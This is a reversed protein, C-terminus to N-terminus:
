GNDQKGLDADIYINPAFYLADVSSGMKLTMTNSDNAGPKFVIGNGLYMYEKNYSGGRDFYMYSSDASIKSTNLYIDSTFTKTGSITQATDTTVMNSPASGGGIGYTASGITLSTWNTGDNTGSVADPINPTYSTSTGGANSLVLTDGSVTASVVYASPVDTTLAVTGNNAPFNIAYNGSSGVRGLTTAANDISSDKIVISGNNFTKVGTINQATDVTVKNNLATQLDTQNSLVGTINGWTATAININGSGVISQNNITKVNSSLNGTTLLEGSATPVYYVWYRYDPDSPSVGKKVTIYPAGSANTSIELSNPTSGIKLTQTGSNAGVVLSQSFEKSGSITQTTDLTVKNDLATQLDTQDALTGGIDGWNVDSSGDQGRPIGFTFAFSKENDPGSAVVTATASSGPVLTQATATISGFGAPSGDAGTNGQPGQPGVPGQPGTEGQPGPAPFVGLNFWQPTEDGEFARTFIYYNYPEETGVVYADGYEGEYTEPDPLDAASNVHGIVKIGFEALVTVGDMIDQINKMNRLVQEQLNRFEKNGFKLM